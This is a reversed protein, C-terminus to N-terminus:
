EAAPTGLAVIGDIYDKHAEYDAAAQADGALANDKIAKAVDYLSSTYTEGYLTVAKGEGNTYKLYPRATLAATVQEKKTLDFGVCVGTFTANGGEDVTYLTEHDDKLYAKGEVFLPANKSPNKFNHTLEGDLADLIDKRAVIFGYEELNEFTRQEATVAARFRIGNKAADAGLRISTVKDTVPAAAQTEPAWVAYVTTDGTLKIESVVDAITADPAPAWGMFAYGNVVPREGKLLYGTGLGRNLDPAVETVVEAGVPANTNYAVTTVGKRYVRVYDVYTDGGWSARNPDIAFGYIKDAWPDKPHGKAPDSMDVELLHYNNDVPLKHITNGVKHEGSPKYYSDGATSTYYYMIMDVNGTVPAYDASTMEEPLKKNVVNYDNALKYVYQVITYQSADFGDTVKTHFRMDSMYRGVGDKIEYTTGWQHIHLVGRGEDQMIESYKDKAPDLLTDGEYVQIMAPIEASQYFPYFSRYKLDSVAISEGARYVKGDSSIWRNFTEGAENTASYGIEAPEPFTYTDGELDKVYTLEASDKAPKYILANQPFCYLMVDDMYFTTQQYKDDEGKITNLQPGFSKIGNSLAALNSSHFDMTKWTNPAPRNSDGFGITHATSHDNSTPNVFRFYIERVIEPKEFMVSVTSTFKANNINIAEFQPAFIRHGATTYNSYGKAAHNLGDPDSPDERVAKSETGDSRIGTAKSSTLYDPNAYAMQLLDDGQEYDFLMVLEGKKEDVLPKTMSYLTKGKMDAMNVTEDPLYLKGTGDLWGYTGEAAAPLTFTEVSEVMEYTDGNQYIFANEPFYYIRLNDVYLNGANPIIRFQKINTISKAPDDVMPFLGNTYMGFKNISNETKAFGPVSSHFWTGPAANAPKHDLNRSILDDNSTGDANTPDPTTFWREMYGSLKGDDTMYDYEAHYTGPLPLFKEFSLLFQHWSTGSNKMYMAHNAADAPDAVVTLSTSAGTIDSVTIYAPDIYDVTNFKANESDFNQYYLLKGLKADILPIDLNENIVPAANLATKEDPLIEKFEASSEVSELEFAGVPLCATILFLMALILALSRKM